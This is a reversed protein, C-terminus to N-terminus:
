AFHFVFSYFIGFFLFNCFNKNEVVNQYLTFAVVTNSPHNLFWVLSVFEVNLM